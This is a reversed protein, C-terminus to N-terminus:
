TTTESPTTAKYSINNSAPYRSNTRPKVEASIGALRHGSFAFRHGSFAQFV